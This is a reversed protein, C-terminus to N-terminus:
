RSDEDSPEELLEIKVRRLRYGKDFWAQINEPKGQTHRRWSDGATKAISSLGMAMQIKEDPWPGLIIHANISIM